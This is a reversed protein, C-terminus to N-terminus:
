PSILPLRIEAESVAGTVTSDMYRLFGSDLKDAYVGEQPQVDAYAIWRSGDEAPVPPAQVGVSASMEARDDELSSVLSSAVVKLLNSRNHMLMELSGPLNVPPPGQQVNPRM